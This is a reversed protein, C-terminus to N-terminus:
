IQVFRPPAIQDVMVRLPVIKLLYVSSLALRTVKGRSGWLPTSRRKAGVTWARKARRLSFVPERRSWNSLKNSVSLECAVAVLNWNLELLWNGTLNCIPLGGFKGTSQFVVFCM